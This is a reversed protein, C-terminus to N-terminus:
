DQHGVKALLELPELNYEEALKDLDSILPWPLGEILKDSNKALEHTRIWERLKKLIELREPVSLDRLRSGTCLYEMWLTYVREAEYSLDVEKIHGLEDLETKYKKGDSGPKGLSLFSNETWDTMFHTWYEDVQVVGSSMNFPPIDTQVLSEGETMYWGLPRQLKGIVYATALEWPPTSWVVDLDSTDIPKNQKFVMNVWERNAYIGAWQKLAMPDCISYSLRSVWQAERISISQGLMHTFKSVAMVDPLRDPAIGETCGVAWPVGLPDPNRRFENRAISIEKEITEIQPSSGNLGQNKILENIRELILSTLLKRNKDRNRTDVAVERIIDKFRTDMLPGRGM